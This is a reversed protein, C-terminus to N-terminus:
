KAMQVSAPMAQGDPVGKVQTVALLSVVVFALCGAAIIRM